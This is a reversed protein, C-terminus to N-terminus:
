NQEAKERREAKGRELNNLILELMKHSVCNAFIALGSYCIPHDVASPLLNIIENQSLVGGEGGCVIGESILSAGLSIRHERSLGSGDIFERAEEIKM